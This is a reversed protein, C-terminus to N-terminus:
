LQGDRQEAARQGVPQSGGARLQFLGRGLDRIELREVLV